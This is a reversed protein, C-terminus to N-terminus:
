RELWQELYTDFLMEDNQQENLYIEIASNVLDQISKFSRWGEVGNVTIKQRRYM